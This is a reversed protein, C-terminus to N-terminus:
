LLASGRATSGSTATSSPLTSVHRSVLRDLQRLSVRMRGCLAAIPVPVELHAEMVAIGRRVTDPVTLGQPENDQLNHPGCLARLRKPLSAEEAALKVFRDFPARVKARVRDLVRRAM